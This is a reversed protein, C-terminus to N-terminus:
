NTELERLTNELNKINNKFENIQNEQAKMTEILLAIVNGYLVSKEGQNNTRVLEPTLKEVDQAIFGLSPTNSKEWKYSVGKLAMTKNIPNHIKQIDKKLSKDSNYFFTRAYMDGVATMWGVCALKGTSTIDGNAEVGFFTTRLSGTTSLDGLIVLNGTAGSDTVELTGNVDLAAIPTSTGIGIQITNDLIGSTSDIPHLTQMGLPVAADFGWLDSSGVSSIWTGGSINECYNLKNSADVALAGVTCPNPLAAQPFLRIHDYSGNPSPYYTTINAEGAFCLPTIHLTSIILFFLSAIKKNM